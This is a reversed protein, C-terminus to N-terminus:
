VISVTQSLDVSVKIKGDLSKREYNSGSLLITKYIRHTSDTIITTNALMKKILPAVSM